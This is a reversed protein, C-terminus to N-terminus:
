SALVGTKDTARLENLRERLYDPLQLGPADTAVREFLQLARASDGARDFCRAAAAM